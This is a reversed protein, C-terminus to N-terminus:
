GLTAIAARPSVGDISVVTVSGPPGPPTPVGNVVTDGCPPTTGKGLTAGLTLLEHNARSGAYRTGQWEVVVACSPSSVVRSSSPRGDGGRENFIAIAAAAAVALLIGVAISLRRSPGFRQRRLPQAPGERDRLLAALEDVDILDHPDSEHKM